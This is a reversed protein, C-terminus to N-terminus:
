EPSVWEGISAYLHLGIAYLGGEAPACYVVRARSRYSGRMSRVDLRQNAKLAQSTLM